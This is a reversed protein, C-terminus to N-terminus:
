WNKTSPELRRSKPDTGEQDVPSRPAPKRVKAKGLNLGVVRQGARAEPHWAQVHCRRQNPRPVQAKIKGNSKRQQDKGPARRTRSHCRATEVHAQKTSLLQARTGPTTIYSVGGLCRETMRCRSGLNRLEIQGMM